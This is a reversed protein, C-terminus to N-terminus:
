VSPISWKSWDWRQETSIITVSSPSCRYVIDEYPGGGGPIPPTDRTVQISARVSRRALLLDVVNVQDVSCSVLDDGHELRLSALTRNAQHTPLYLWVVLVASVTVAVFLSRISFRIRIPLKPM